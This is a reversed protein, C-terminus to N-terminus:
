ISKQKIAYWGPYKNSKLRRRITPGACNYKRACEAISRYIVSDAIIPLSRVHNLSMKSISERSHKKGTWTGKKGKHAASIKAKHAESLLRGPVGGGDGNEPKLNAFDNSEVINWKNSYKIGVKSLEEKDHTQFLIDTTVDNGHINLHSLWYKGSGKYLYPDRITKGLYKLGTQNHTKLYLTYQAM